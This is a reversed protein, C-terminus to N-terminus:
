IKDLNASAMKLDTEKKRFVNLLLILPLGLFSYTPEKTPSRPPMKQFGGKM